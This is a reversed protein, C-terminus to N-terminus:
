PYRDEGSRSDNRRLSREAEVIDEIDVGRYYLKGECSVKKGDVTKSSQIESIETLGTLVGNGNLDRLGRNVQYQAYLEPNIYGQEACQKALDFIEPTIESFRNKSNAAM